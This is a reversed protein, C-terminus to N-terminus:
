DRDLIRRAGALRAGWYGQDMREIRVVSNSNPAHIFTQGDVAIGVHSVSRGATVFFVLDGAGIQDRSVEGGIKWQERVGAPLEIGHQSF